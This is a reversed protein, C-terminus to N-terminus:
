EETQFYNQYMTNYGNRLCFECAGGFNVCNEHIDCDVQIFTDGGLNVKALHQQEQEDTRVIAEYKDEM